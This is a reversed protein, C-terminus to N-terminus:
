VKSKLYNETTTYFLFSEKRIGDVILVARPVDLGCLYMIESNPPLALSGWIIAIGDPIKDMFRGRRAEYEFKDFTLPGPRLRLLLL